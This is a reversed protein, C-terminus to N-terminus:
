YVVFCYEGHSFSRCGGGGELEDQDTISSCALHSFRNSSSNCACNGSALEDPECVTRETRLGGALRLSLGRKDLTMQSTFELLFVDRCETHFDM